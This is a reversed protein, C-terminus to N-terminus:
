EKGPPLNKIQHTLAPIQYQCPGTFRCEAKRLADTLGVVAQTFKLQNENSSKLLEKADERSNKLQDRLLLWTLVSFVGPPGLYKLLEFFTPDM